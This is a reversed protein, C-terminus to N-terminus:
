LFTFHHRESRLGAEALATEFADSPPTAEAPLRLKNGNKLVVAARVTLDLRTVLRVHDIQELPISMSHPGSFWDLSDSRLDAGASRGSYMDWAAPLTLVFLFAVLLLAADFVAWGVALFLWAAGLAILTSWSRGQRRFTYTDPATTM